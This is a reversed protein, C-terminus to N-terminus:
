LWFFHFSAWPAILLRSCLPCPVSSIIVKIIILNLTTSEWYYIETFYRSIHQLAAWLLMLIYCWFDNYCNILVFGNYIRMIEVQTNVSPRLHESFLSASVVFARQLSRSWSFFCMFSKWVANLLKVSSTIAFNYVYAYIGIGTLSAALSAPGQSVRIRRAILEEAAGFLEWPLESKKYQARESM